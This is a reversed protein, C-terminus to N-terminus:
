SPYNVQITRRLKGNDLIIPTESASYDAEYDYSQAPEPYVPENIYHIAKLDRAAALAM